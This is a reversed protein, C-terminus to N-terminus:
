VRTKLEIEGDDGMRISIIGFVVMARKIYGVAEQFTPTGPPGLAVEVPKADMEHRITRVWVNLDHTNLTTGFKERIAERAQVITIRPRAAMLERLYAIKDLTEKTPM